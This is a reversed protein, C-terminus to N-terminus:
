RVLWVEYPEGMNGTFYEDEKMTEMFLDLLGNKDAENEVYIQGISMMKAMHAAGLHLLSDLDPAKYYEFVETDMWHFVLIMENPDPVDKAMLAFADISSLKGNMTILNKNKADWTWVEYNTNGLKTMTKVLMYAKKSVMTGGVLRGKPFAVSKYFKMFDRMAKSLKM